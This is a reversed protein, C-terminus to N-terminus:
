NWGYDPEYLYVRQYRRGLSTLIEYSTTQAFSALDDLTQQANILTLHSPVTELDTIDFVLSDMSVRGVQPVLQDECYALTGNSLARFLGDAYGGFVTALKTTRTAIFTAGYGVAENMGITRCQMVPLDLQVVSKMPNTACTTPNGGYLAIGPRALDFYFADDLFLGSSNVLSHQARPYRAQMLAAAETFVALQQRNLTHEPTPACALHSMFLRLNIWQWVSSSKLLHMLDQPLIGLRHMGSDLKIACPLAANKECCFKAWRELHEVDIIVPMLQHHLWEDDLGHAIGGFVYVLSSLKIYRRLEIAEDLTSVFFVNCGASELVPAVQKVGLGYANAKVVAACQNSPNVQQFRDRLSLWNSCISNLNITLRGTPSM